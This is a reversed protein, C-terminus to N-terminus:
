GSRRVYRDILARSLLRQRLALELRNSELEDRPADRGRLAQRAAVLVRVDEQLAEVSAPVAGPETRTHTTSPTSRAGPPVELDFGEGTAVDRVSLEVQESEPHWLLLVEDTGSLRQALERAPASM